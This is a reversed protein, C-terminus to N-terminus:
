KNGFTKEELVKKGFTHSFTFIDFLLYFNNLSLPWTMTNPIPSVARSQALDAMLTPASLTVTIKLLPKLSM